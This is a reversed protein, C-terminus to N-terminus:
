GNVSKQNSRVSVQKWGWRKANPEGVPYRCDNSALIIRGDRHNSMKTTIADNITTMLDKYFERKYPYKTEINDGQLSSIGNLVTVKEGNEDEFTAMIM